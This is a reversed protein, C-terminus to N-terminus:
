SWHPILPAVRMDSSKVCVLIFPLQSHILLYLVRVLWKFAKLSFNSSILFLLEGM